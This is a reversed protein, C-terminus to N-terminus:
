EYLCIPNEAWKTECLVGNNNQKRQTEASYTETEPFDIHDNSCQQYTILLSDKIQQM